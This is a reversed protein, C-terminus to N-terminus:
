DNDNNDEASSVEQMKEEVPNFGRPFQTKSNYKAWRFDSGSLQARSLNAGEFSGWRLDANDLYSDILNAGIFHSETLDAGTFTAQRLISESFNAGNLNAKTFLAEKFNKGKFNAGLLYCGKGTKQILKATEKVSWIYQRYNKINCGALKDVGEEKGEETSSWTSNSLFCAMLVILTKKYRHKM